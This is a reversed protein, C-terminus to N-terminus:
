FIVKEEAFFLPSRGLDIFRREDELLLRGAAIGEESRMAFELDEMSNWWLQAVGDYPEPAGRGRRVGDNIEGEMGHLQVYRAIRLAERQRRVLPAHTEFWYDLFEAHSLRPLRHLCFTLKIM